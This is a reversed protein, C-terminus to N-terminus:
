IKVASKKRRPGKDPERKCAYSELLLKLAFRASKGRCTRSILMDFPSELVATSVLSGSGSTAAM